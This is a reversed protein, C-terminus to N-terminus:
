GFVAAIFENWAVTRLEAATNRLSTVQQLRSQWEEALQKQIQPTPVPILLELLSQKSINKMTPSTGTVKAEIQQRVSPTKLVANLFEAHVPSDKRFVVRFLKDCLMLRPPTERVIASVGVLRTINCRSIILDGPRVELEPRPRHKRPLAKNQNPDFTGTSVASIKLIAWEDDRAQRSACQVSWGNDIGNVVEGLSVIPFKEMSSDPPMVAKQLIGEHSWREIDRFRAIQFPRKPLDPPPTLGLAAEFERQADCEIQLAQAELEAAKDLAQQYAAVLRRQDKLSPLPVELEEFDPLKVETRGDQGSKNDALWAKFRPTQILLRFYDPLVKSRDPKYVAFHTTVAVDAWDNPLLGVAGNKLDIKSLVVDGPRVWLMPLSYERGEKLLRKSISGDFHISIPVIESFPTMTKDVPEVRRSLFDYISSHSRIRSHAILSSVRIWDWRDMEKWRRIKCIM